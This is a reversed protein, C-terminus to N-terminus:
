FNNEFEHFIDIHQRKLACCKNVWENRKNVVKDEIVCIASAPLHVALLRNGPAEMGIKVQALGTGYRKIKLVSIHPPPPPNKLKGRFCGSKGRKEGNNFYKRAVQM